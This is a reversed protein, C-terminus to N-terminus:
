APVRGIPVAPVGAVVSDAAVSRTVVAGAAVVSNAGITVGKLVTVGDGLWVNDEIVVPATAANSGHRASAAIGHADTDLVRVGVGFLCDAGISIGQPSESIVVVDNNLVTRAGIAIVAEPHRCDVYGVGTAARPSRAFGFQCGQGLVLRGPGHLLTPQVVRAHGEVRRM